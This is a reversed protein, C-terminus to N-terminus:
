VRVFWYLFLVLAVIWLPRMRFAALLRRAALKLEPLDIPRKEEDVLYWTGFAIMLPTIGAILAAGHLAGIPSLNQM